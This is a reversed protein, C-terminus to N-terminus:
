WKFKQEVKLEGNMIEEALGNIYTKVDSPVMNGYTGIGCTGSKLTLPIFWHQSRFESYRNEQLAKIVMEIASDFNWSANNLITNPAQDTVDKYHQCSYIGQAKAELTGSLDDLSIFVVDAGQEVFAKVTDRTRIPALYAGMIVRLCKISPDVYQAGDRYAASYLTDLPDDMAQLIGLKKSKTMKASLAGILFLAEEPDQGITVVNPPYYGEGRNLAYEVVFITNPYNPAIKKVAAEYGSSHAWVIDDMEARAKLTSEIEKMDTEESYGIKIPYKKSLKVLSEYANSDWVGEDHYGWMIMGVSLSKSEPKGAASEKEGEAFLVNIGAVFLGIALFMYMFRKM